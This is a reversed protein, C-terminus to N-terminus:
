IKICTWFLPFDQYIQLNEGVDPLSAIVIKWNSSLNMLVNSLNRVLATMMYKDCVKHHPSVLLQHLSLTQCTWPLRSLNMVLSTTIYTGYRKDCPRVLLQHHLSLKQCSNVLEHCDHCTWSLGCIPWTQNHRYM